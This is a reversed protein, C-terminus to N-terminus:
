IVYVLLKVLFFIGNCVDIFLKFIILIGCDNFVNFLRLFCSIEFIMGKMFISESGFFVCCLKFFCIIKIGDLICCVIEDSGCLVDFEWIIVKCRLCFNDLLIVKLLCYMCGCYILLVSVYRCCIFM